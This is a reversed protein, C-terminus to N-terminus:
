PHLFIIKFDRLKENMDELLIGNSERLVILFRRVAAPDSLGASYIGAPRM